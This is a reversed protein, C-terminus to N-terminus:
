MSRPGSLAPTIWVTRCSCCYDGSVTIQRRPLWSCSSTSAASSGFETRGHSELPPSMVRRENLACPMSEGGASTDLPGFLQGGEILILPVVIHVRAQIRGARQVILGVMVPDPDAAPEEPRLMVESLVDHM